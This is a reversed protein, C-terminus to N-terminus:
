LCSSKFVKCMHPGGPSIPRAEDKIRQKTEQRSSILHSSSSILPLPFSALPFCLHSVESPCVFSSTSPPFNIDPLSSTFNLSPNSGQKAKQTATLRRKRRKRKEKAENSRAERANRRGEGISPSFSLSPSICEICRWALNQRVRAPANGEERRSVKERAQCNLFLHIFLSKNSPHLVFSLVSSFLVILDVPSNLFVSLCLSLSLSLSVLLGTL